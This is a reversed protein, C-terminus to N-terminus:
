STLTPFSHRKPSSTPDLFMFVNTTILNRKAKSFRASRWCSATSSRDPFRGFSRGRSRTNQTKSEASQDSQREASTITLGSVTIRHRRCPRRSQQRHFDLGQLGPRGRILSSIRSSIQWIDRSFEVQPAGRISDSSRKSPMSTASLVTALYMTRFRLGGV